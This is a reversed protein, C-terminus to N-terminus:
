SAHAGPEDGLRLQLEEDHEGAPVFGCKELVRISGLNHKVVHAYLPRAAVHELFLALAASAIGQGWYDKGLWYGVERQGDQAWSVINGAVHDGAVITQMINGAHAMNKAWHAMFADHERSPFGAMHTAEPDLQQAFFIPLDAATVDRLHVDARPRDPSPM